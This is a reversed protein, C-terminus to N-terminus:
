KFIKFNLTMSVLTQMQIYQLYFTKKKGVKISKKKRTFHESLMVIVSYFTFMLGYFRIEAFLSQATVATNRPAAHAHVRLGEEPVVVPRVVLVRGGGRRARAHGADARRGGAGRVRDAAGDGRVLHPGAHPKSM